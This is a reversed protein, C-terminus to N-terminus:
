TTICRSAIGIGHATPKYRNTLFRDRKERELDVHVENKSIYGQIPNYKM